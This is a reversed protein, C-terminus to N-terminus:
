DKTPDSPAVPARGGINRHLFDLLQMFFKARNERKYIGHGETPFYLTEVPVNAAKLAREMMETHEIPATEDVKGASLFVPVKIRSALKNPSLAAVDGDNFTTAFFTKLYDNYSANDDRVKALDYVGVQGAACKYLDPEKAVGMLAAYGGYSAGYLCIRNKDAIGQSIAWRTADTLDDQMALGWQKYGALAFERGYGESGRYNVQFVAYGHAALLQVATNYGWTDGVGFPGGHPYVIMPLNKGDSGPPLTLWGPIKRGDRAAFTVLQMKALRNPDLWDAAYMVPTVKHTDANMSYFAGPERDGYAYLLIEHKDTMEGAGLVYEGAFAKSLARHTRADASEPDFYEIRPTTGSFGIGIPYHKGVAHIVQAPSSLEDHMLVKTTGDAVNYAVVSSPGTKEERIFYAISDDPSFGIPRTKVGSTGEDNFLVWDSSNSKRYFLQQRQDAGYGDAFRAQAHNDTTFDANKVPALAIRQLSGTKVNMREVTSYPTGTRSVGVIITNDDDPLTDIVAAGFTERNVPGGARASFGPDNNRIGALQISHKGDADVAWLEGTLYPSEDLQDKVAFSYILREDSVWTVGVIHTKRGRAGLRMIPKSEGPKIVILMTQDEVPVTIAVYTGKPSVTLSSFKDERIFDAINYPQATQATANGAMAFLAAFMLLSLRKM